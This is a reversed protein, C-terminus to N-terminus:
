KKGSPSMLYVMSKDIAIKHLCDVIPQLKLVMGAGGGYSYDDVKKHKDNSYERFNIVKIEVLKKEIAIKIISTSLFPKFLEPFLTLITIKM